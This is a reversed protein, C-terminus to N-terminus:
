QILAQFVLALVKGAPVDLQANGAENGDGAHVTVGSFSVPDVDPADTCENGITGCVAPTSDVQALIASEDCSGGPCVVASDLSQDVKISGAVYGFTGDLADQLTVDNVPGGPNDIYVLFLVPLGQPVTSGDPIATGDMQFARKVLQRPIEVSDIVSDEAASSGGGCSPFFNSTATTTVDAAAAPPSAPLEIAILLDFTAGSAM